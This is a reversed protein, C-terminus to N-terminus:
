IEQELAKLRLFLQGAVKQQPLLDTRAESIHRRMSEFMPAYGQYYARVRDIYGDSLSKRLAPVADVLSEHFTRKLQSGTKRGYVISSIFIITGLTALVLPAAGMPDPGLYGTLGALFLFLLSYKLLKKMMLYRRMALVDLFRRLKLHLIGQQMAKRMGESFLVKQADFSVEDFGEVKIGLRNELHPRMEQWKERCHIRMKDAEDIAFKEAAVCVHDILYAEVKMALDGKGFIGIQSAIVGTRLGTYRMVRKIQGELLKGLQGMNEIVSQVETARIRDIQAEISQLYEQDGSLNRSRDDIVEEARRLLGLCQKYVHRLERRRDLCRNLIYDVHEQVKQIGTARLSSVDFMPIESGVRKIALEKIHGLLVSIDTPDRQDSQHLIIASKHRCVSFTRELTDWTMPAWPNVAPLMWLVFDAEAMSLEVACKTKESLSMFDRVEILEYEKLKTTYRKEYAEENKDFVRYGIDRLVCVNSEQKKLDSLDVKILRQLFSTKGVGDGGIIVFRFPRLIPRELESEGEILDTKSRKALSRTYRVLEVLGNRTKLYEEGLM